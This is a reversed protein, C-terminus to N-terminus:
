KATKTKLIEGAAAPMLAGEPPTNKSKFDDCMQEM